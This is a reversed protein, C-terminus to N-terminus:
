HFMHLYLYSRGKPVAFNRTLPGTSMNVPSKAVGTISIKSKGGHWQNRPPATSSLSLGIRRTASTHRIEHLHIVPLQVDPHQTNYKAVAGRWSRSFRERHRWAGDVTGFVMAEAARRTLSIEGREARYSKLLRM